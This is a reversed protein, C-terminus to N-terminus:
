AAARDRRVKVRVDVRGGLRGIISILRDVTFRGPDANRIRSFGAAAIGTRAQAARVPLGQDDLVKIIGGSLIAKLQLVDPNKLGLDRHWCVTLGAGHELGM